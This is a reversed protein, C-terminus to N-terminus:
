VKINYKSRLQIKQPETAEGKKSVAANKLEEQIEADLAEFAEEETAIDILQKLSFQNIDDKYKMVTKVIVQDSMEKFNLSAIEPKVTATKLGTKGAAIQGFLGGEAGSGITTFTKKPLGLTTATTGPIIPKVPKKTEVPTEKPAPPTYPLLNLTRYEKERWGQIKSHFAAKRDFSYKDSSITDVSEEDDKINKLSDPSIKRDKEEKKNKYDLYSRLDSVYNDIAKSIEEKTGDKNFVLRPLQSGLGFIGTKPKPSVDPKAEGVKPKQPVVPPTKSAPKIEKEAWEEEAVGEPQKVEKGLERLKKLVDSKGLAAELGKKPTEEPKSTPERKKLRNIPNRLDELFKEAASELQALLIQLKLSTKDGACFSNGLFFIM